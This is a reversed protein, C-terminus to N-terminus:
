PKLLSNPLFLTKTNPEITRAIRKATNSIITGSSPVQKKTPPSIPQTM